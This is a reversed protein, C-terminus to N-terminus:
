GCGGEARTTFVRKMDTTVVTTSVLLTVDVTNQRVGSTSTIIEIVFIKDRWSMHGTLLDTIFLERGVYKVIM